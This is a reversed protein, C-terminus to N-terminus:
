VLEAKRRKATQALTLGGTAVLLGGISYFVTASGTAPHRPLAAADAGVIASQPITVTIPVKQGEFEAYILHTGAPLTKLFSEFLTVITSGKTVAYDVGKVLAKGNFTLQKFLEIDIDIRTTLSGFGPWEGLTAPPVAPIATGTDPNKSDSYSDGFATPAAGGVLAATLATIAFARRFKM